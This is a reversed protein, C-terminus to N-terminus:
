TGVWLFSEGLSRTFEIAYKIVAPIRQATDPNGLFGPQQFATISANDLLLARPPPASSDSSGRSEPWMYSLALYRYASLGLIICQKHTDILWLPVNEPPRQPISDPVCANGHLSNCVEIWKRTQEAYRPTSQVEQPRHNPQELEAVLSSSPEYEWSGDSRSPSSPIAYPNEM